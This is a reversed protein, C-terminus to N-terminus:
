SGYDRRVYFLNNEYPVSCIRACWCFKSAMDKVYLSGTALGFYAVPIESRESEGSSVVKFEKGCHCEKGYAWGEPIRPTGYKGKPIEDYEVIKITDGIKVEDIPCKVWKYSPGKLGLMKYFGPHVNAETLRNTLAVPDIKM